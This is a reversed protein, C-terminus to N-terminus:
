QGHHYGQNVFSEDPLSQAYMEGVTKSSLGQNCNQQEDPPIAPSRAAM